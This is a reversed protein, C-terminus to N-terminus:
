GCAQAAERGRNAETQKSLHHLDRHRQHCLFLRCNHCQHFKGNNFNDVQITTQSSDTHYLSSVPQLQLPHSQRGFCTKWDCVLYSQLGAFVKSVHQSHTRYSGFLNGHRTYTTFWLIVYWYYYMCYYILCNKLLKKLSLRWINKSIIAIGEAMTRTTVLGTQKPRARSHCVLGM